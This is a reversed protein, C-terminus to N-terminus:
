LPIFIFIPLSINSFVSRNWILVDYDSSNLELFSKCAESSNAKQEFVIPHQSICDYNILFNDTRVYSESSSNDSTTVFDYAIGISCQNLVIVAVLVFWNGLQFHVKIM